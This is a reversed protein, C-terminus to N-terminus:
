VIAPEALRTFEELEGEESAQERFTEQKREITTLENFKEVKKAAALHAMRAADVAQAAAVRETEAAQAAKHLLAERERYHAIEQRVQDVEARSHIRRQLADYLAAQHRTLQRSFTDARERDQRALLAARELEDLARRLEAQAREEQHKRVQLIQQFTTAM